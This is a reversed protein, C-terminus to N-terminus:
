RCKKAAPILDPDSINSDVAPSRIYLEDSAASGAYGGSILGVESESADHRRSRQDGSGM